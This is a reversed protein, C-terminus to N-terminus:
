HSPTVTLVVNGLKQGTEVYRAAEVVQELPYRRDIVARYSGAELLGALFAVDDKAYQPPIPFVVTTDGFRRTWAALAVNQLGDTTLYYGGHRLSGRCRAFSLKGVADYVADYRKGNRTFDDREYDIVEQAGLSRVAEASGAGCVATVEAGFHTALQVAATGVSGSAGYVLIATGKKVGAPRLCGLALIAGDCVAAAQEFTVNAPKHALPASSAVCVYEAHAGFNDRGLGANVGFVKDGVAFESVDAGIAAVEGAFEYGFVKWKPRVLGTVFRGVFPKAQRFECDTRTVTTAHVRVLIQDQRPVPREVDALRLVEPPGYRDCVVARV